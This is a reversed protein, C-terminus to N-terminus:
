LRIAYSTAQRTYNGVIDRLGIFDACRSSRFNKAM